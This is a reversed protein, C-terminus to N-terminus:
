LHGINERTEGQSGSAEGIETRAHSKGRAGLTGDAGDPLFESTRIRRPEPLFAQAEGEDEQGEYATHPEDKVDNAPHDHRAVFFLTQPM